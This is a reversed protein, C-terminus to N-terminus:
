ELIDRTTSKDERDEGDEVTPGLLISGRTTPVVHIGKTEVSPCSFIIHPLRSGFERDLIWYQGKRPWMHFSDGGALTSIVDAHLGAANVFFDAEITERPTQVSNLHVGTKGFGIVPSNFNIDAGNSAALEAFAWTLRMPDIIGEDPLHLASICRESIMPELQRAEEGTL